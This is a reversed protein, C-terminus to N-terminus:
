PLGSRTASTTTPRSPPLSSSRRRSTGRPIARRFPRFSKTPSDGSPAPTRDRDANRRVNALNATITWGDLSLAYTDDDKREFAIGRSSLAAEFIANADIPM